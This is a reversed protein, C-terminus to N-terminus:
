SLHKWVRLYFHRSVTIHINQIIVNSSGGSVSLGKGRIVGADGVGVISKDSAIEILSRAANDWTAEIDEENDDCTDKITDQGGADAGCRDIGRCAHGTTTGESGIFNFEKDILIVRPTSDTLWSVLRPYPINADSILRRRM